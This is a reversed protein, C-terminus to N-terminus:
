YSRNHRTLFEIMVLRTFISCEVSSHFFVFFLSACMFHIAAKDFIDNCKIAYDCILCTNCHLLVNYKIECKIRLQSCVFLSNTASHCSLIIYISHRFLICKESDYMKKQKILKTKWIPLHYAVDLRVWFFFFFFIKILGWCYVAVYSYTRDQCTLDSAALALLYITKNGYWM